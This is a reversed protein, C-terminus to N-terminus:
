SEFSVVLDTPHLGQEIKRKLEVTQAAAKIWNKAGLPPTGKKKLTHMM